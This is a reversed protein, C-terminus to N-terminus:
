RGILSQLIALNRNFIVSGKIYPTIKELDAESDELLFEIAKEITSFQSWWTLATDLVYPTVGLLIEREQEITDATKFGGGLYFVTKDPYHIRHWFMCDWPGPHPSSVKRPHCGLDIAFYSSNSMNHFHLLDVFSERWRWMSIGPNAFGAPVFVPCITERIVKKNEAWTPKMAKYVKEFDARAEQIITQSNFTM